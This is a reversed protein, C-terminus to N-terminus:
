ILESKGIQNKKSNAFSPQGKILIIYIRINIQVTGFPRLRWIKLKLHGVEKTNIRYNEEENPAKGKSNRKKLIHIHTLSCLTPGRTQVAKADM